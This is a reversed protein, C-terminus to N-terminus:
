VRDQRNSRQRSFRKEAIWGFLLQGPELAEPFRQAM